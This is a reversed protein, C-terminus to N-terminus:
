GQVHNATIGDEMLGEGLAVMFGNLRGVVQKMNGNSDVLNM